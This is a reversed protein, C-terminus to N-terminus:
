PGAGRAGAAQLRAAGEVLALAVMIFRDLHKGKFRAISEEHEVDVERKLGERTIEFAWSFVLTPILGIALAIVVLRVATDGFGFAPFITEVVQVILWSSVLYAAAVRFVNRRKLETLLKM